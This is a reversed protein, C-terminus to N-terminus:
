RRTCAAIGPAQRMRLEIMSALQAHYPSPRGAHRDVPDPLAAALLAAEHPTLASAPKGFAYRAGEEVGFRGDGWQAINLYVELIRRKPWVLDIWLAIPAELAKRLWSRGNWLFLNKAVQMTITSAGHTHRHRENNDIAKDVAEWDIGDHACFRGDEAALVATRMAFPIRGIPVWERRMGHGTLASELMVASIPPVALYILTLVLPALAILLLLHALRRRFQM